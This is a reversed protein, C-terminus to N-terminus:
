NCIDPISDVSLCEGAFGFVYPYLGDGRFYGRVPTRYSRRGTIPLAVTLDKIIRYSPLRTQDRSPSVTM